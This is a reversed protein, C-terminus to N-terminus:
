GDALLHRALRKGQIWRRKPTTGHALSPASNGM